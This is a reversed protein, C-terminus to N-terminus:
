SLIKAGVSKVVKKLEDLKDKDIEIVVKTKTQKRKWRKFYNQLTCIETPRLDTGPNEPDKLVFGYQIDVISNNNVNELSYDEMEEVNQGDIYILDDDHYYGKSWFEPDSYFENWEKGSVKM